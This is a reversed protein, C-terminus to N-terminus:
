EAKIGSDAIIKANRAYEERMLKALGEPTGGRPVFSQQAMKQLIDPMKLIQNVEANLKAVVAPPTGATTLLAFWSSVPIYDKLGLENLTPINPLDPSRIADSMAIPIVKGDRIHQLVANLPAMM